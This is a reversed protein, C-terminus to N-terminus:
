KRFRSNESGDFTEDLLPEILRPLGIGVHGCPSVGSAVLHDLFLDRPSVPQPRGHRVRRNQPTETGLEAALGELVRSTTTRINKYIRARRCRLRPIRVHTRNRIM